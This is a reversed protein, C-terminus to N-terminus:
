NYRCWRADNSYCLISRSNRCRSGMDCWFIKTCAKCGGGQHWGRLNSGFVFVENPALTNICEPTYKVQVDESLNVESPSTAKNKFFDFNGM